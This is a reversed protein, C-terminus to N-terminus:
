VARIQQTPIDRNINFSQILAHQTKKSEPKWKIKVACVPTIRDGTGIQGPWEFRPM